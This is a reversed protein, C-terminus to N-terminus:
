SIGIFVGTRSGKLASPRVGADELAHWTLQMMLRQQPDMAEAERPSIGFFDADFADVGDIFGGWRTAMKGPASPDPDFWQQVDWRGAPVETIADRGTSLLDWFADV